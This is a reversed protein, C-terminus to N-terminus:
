AMALRGRGQARILLAVMIAMNLVNWGLGNAFAAAYSGTADFIVGSVWGGFSMGWVSAFIVIGVRTAAERAPMTERVIIAYSPVIGGQFLGFMGSILYLSTLSDFFLYFLLAFAQAVSGVLLTRIGGIKDALFGSGIRSIVGFGMMMSLMEAGHAMGYGLDGCYAVIHVQPMAMAVCCSISAISLLVTLTNASLKLDLQPPLANAHDRAGGSGIIMRLVIVLITMTVACFIGIAIHTSRWGITQVGWNVLPPWITGAVYNGSAVITVALGRYREFWHSAEAMLPAFTASTGLGILFYSANFQWLTTALGALVFAVGLFVISIAMAAVIGFRDTIRGMVVGGSGFGMFIMTTALSVAGRSASFETQVTPLVVVVAWMGVAGISAILVALALRGWAQRSDPTFHSSDHPQGAPAHM